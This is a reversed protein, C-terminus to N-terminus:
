APPEADISCTRILARVAASMVMRDLLEHWHEDLLADGLLFRLRAVLGRVADFEDGKGNAAVITSVMSCFREPSMVARRLVIVGDGCDDDDCGSV